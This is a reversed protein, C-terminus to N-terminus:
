AVGRLPRGPRTPQSSEFHRLLAAGTALGIALSTPVLRADAIKMVFWAALTSVLMGAAKTWFVLAALGRVLAAAFIPNTVGAALAQLLWGLIVIRGTRADVGAVLHVLPGTLVLAIAGYLLSVGSIGVVAVRSLRATQADDGRSRTFLPLLLNSSAVVLTTLPAVVLRGVELRGLVAASGMSIVVIRVVLGGVMGLGSQASRWVGFRAVARLEGRSPRAVGLRDGSPLAAFGQGFAVAAGAAMCLLISALTTTGWIEIAAVLGATCILYTADNLALRSFELRAMFTRRGYEELLWFATLLAFAGSEAWGAGLACAALLGVGVCGLTFLWQSGDIGRKVAPSARNLVVLSDGVWSTQMSVSVMLAAFLVSFRGLQDVGLLRVVAVGILLNSASSVVQALLAVSGLRAITRTETM